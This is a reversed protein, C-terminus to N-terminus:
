GKKCAGKRRLFQTSGPHVLLAVVPCVAFRSGYGEVRDTPKLPRSRMTRARPGFVVPPRAAM